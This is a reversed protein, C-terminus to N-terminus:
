FAGVVVVSGVVVSGIRVGRGIVVDRLVGVRRRFLLTPGDLLFTDAGGESRTRHLTANSAISRRSRTPHHVFSEAADRENSAVLPRKQLGFTVTSSSRGTIICSSGNNGDDWKIVREDADHTATYHKRKKNPKATFDVHLESQNKATSVIRCTAFWYGNTWASPEPDYEVGEPEPLGADRGYVGHIGYTDADIQRHSTPVWRAM